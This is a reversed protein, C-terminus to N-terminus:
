KWRFLKQPGRDNDNTSRPSGDEELGRGQFRLISNASGKVFEKGCSAM